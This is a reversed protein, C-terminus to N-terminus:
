PVSGLIKRLTAWGNADVMQVREPLDIHVGPDPIALSSGAAFRFRIRGGNDRVFDVTSPAAGPTTVPGLHQFTYGMVVHLTEPTSLAPSASATFIKLEVRRQDSLPSTRGLALTVQVCGNDVSSETPPCDCDQKKPDCSPPPNRKANPDLDDAHLNGAFALLLLTALIRSGPSAHPLRGKASRGCATLRFVSQLDNGQKM